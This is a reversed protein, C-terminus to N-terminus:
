IRYSNILSFEIEDSELGALGGAPVALGNKLTKSDAGNWQPLYDATNTAPGVVDGASASIGLITKVQALTKVVWNFPSVDSVIFSSEAVAAPKGSIGDWTDGGTMTVAIIEEAITVNIDDAM